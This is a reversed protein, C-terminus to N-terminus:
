LLAASTAATTLLGTENAIYGTMFLDKYRGLQNLHENNGEAM